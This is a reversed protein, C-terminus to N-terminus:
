EFYNDDPDVVTEVDNVSVASEDFPLSLSNEIAMPSSSHKEKLAPV